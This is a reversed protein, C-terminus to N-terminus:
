SHTPPTPGDLLSEQARIVEGCQHPPPQLPPFLLLPFILVNWSKHSCTFNGRMQLVEPKGSCRTATSFTPQTSSGRGEQELLETIACYSVPPILSATPSHGFHGQSGQCCSSPESGVKSRGPLLPSLPPCLASSRSGPSIGHPIRSSISCSDARACVRSPKGELVLCTTASLYKQGRWRVCQGSTNEM